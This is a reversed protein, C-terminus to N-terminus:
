ESTRQGRGNRGGDCDVLDSASIMVHARFNAVDDGFDLLRDSQQPPM